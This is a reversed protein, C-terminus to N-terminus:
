TKIKMTPKAIPIYVTPTAWFQSHGSFSSVYSNRSFNNPPVSAPV